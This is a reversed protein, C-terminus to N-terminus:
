RQGHCAIIIVESQHMGGGVIDMTLSKVTRVVNELLERIVLVLHAPQVIHTPFLKQYRLEM